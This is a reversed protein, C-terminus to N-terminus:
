QGVLALVDVGSEMRSSGFNGSGRTGVGTFVVVDDWTISPLTAIPALPSTGGRAIWRGPEQGATLTLVAELYLSGGPQLPPWRRAASRQLTAVTGPLIEDAEWLGGRDDVYYFDRLTTPLSSRVTPAGGASGALVDVRGQMPRVGRLHQATGWHNRFWDGAASGNGRLLSSARGTADYEDVSLNAVLVDDGLEFSRSALVGTSSIQDQFVVAQGEEPLLVVVATRDGTGGFGDWLLISAALVAAFGAAFFPLTFFLRHRRGPPALIFLNVPGALLAFGAILVAAWIGNSASADVLMDESRRVPRLMDGAPISLAPAYFHLFQLMEVPEAVKVYATGAENIEPPALYDAITWPLLTVRGAGLAEEVLPGGILPGPTTPELYLLGGQM